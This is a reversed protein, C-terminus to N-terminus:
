LGRYDPANRCGKKTIVHANKFSATREEEMKKKKKLPSTRM